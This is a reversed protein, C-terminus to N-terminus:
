HRKGGGGHGRSHRGRDGGWSGGGIYVVPPPAYYPAPAYVVPPPYAVFGFPSISISVGASAASAATLALAVFVLSLIGQKM